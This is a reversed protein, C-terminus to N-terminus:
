LGKITISLKVLIDQSLVMGGSVFTKLIIKMPWIKGVLCNYILYRYIYM